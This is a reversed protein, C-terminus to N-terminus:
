QAERKGTAETDKEATITLTATEAVSLEQKKKMNVTADQLTVSFSWGDPLADKNWSIGVAKDDHVRVYLKWEHPGEVGRIDRYFLPLKEAPFFGIYGTAIGPPPAFDDIGRDYKETAEARWGFFLERLHANTFGLRISVGEAEGAAHTWAASLALLIAAAYISKTTM